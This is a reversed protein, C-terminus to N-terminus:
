SPVNYNMKWMPHRPLDEKITGGRTLDRIWPVGMDWWLEREPKLWDKELYERDVTGLLIDVMDPWSEMLATSRYCLSTGCNDCFGRFKTESSKYWKFPSYQKTGLNERKFIDDGKIWAREGTTQISVDIYSVVTAIWVPTLCGTARRCDNCHDILVQPFRIKQSLAHEDCYVSLPREEFKPVNM